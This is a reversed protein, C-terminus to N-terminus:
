PMQIAVGARWQWQSNERDLIFRHVPGQAGEVREWGQGRDVQWFVETELGEYGSLRATLTVEMGLAIPQGGWDVTTEIRRDPYRQDVQEAWAALAEAGPKAEPMPAVEEGVVPEAEAEPIAQGEAEPMLAVEEGAVPETEAEPMGEAEPIPKVEEGPVLVAEADPEIGLGPEAVLGPTAEAEASPTPKTEPTAEGERKSYHIDVPLLYVDGGFRIHNKDAKVREVTHAAEQLSLYTLRGAKFYGYGIDGTATQAFACKVWRAEKTLAYVIAKKQLTGYLSQRSDDPNEYVKTGASVVAYRTKGERMDAEATVSPTVTPSLVVTPMPTEVPTPTVAEAVAPAEAPGPTEKPGPGEAPGPTEKPAPGEALGPTEKPGPGEAPGPTEKPGPGEAPGPTEKPGPGEALGPTEKPGPGEAPGPTEKPALGEAPGSVTRDSSPSEPAKEVMLERTEEAAQVEAAVRVMPLVRCLALVVALLGM